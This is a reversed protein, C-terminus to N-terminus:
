RTYKGKELVQEVQDIITQDKEKAYQSMTIRFEIVADNRDLIYTYFTPEDLKIFNHTYKYGSLNFFNGTESTTKFDSAKGNVLNEYKAKVDSIKAGSQVFATLAIKDNLGSGPALAVVLTNAEDEEHLRWDVPYDFTIGYKESSYTKSSNQEISEQSTTTLQPSANDVKNKMTNTNSVNWGVLGILGIIVLVALIGIAGFGDEKRKM